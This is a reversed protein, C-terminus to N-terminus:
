NKSKLHDFDLDEPEGQDMLLFPFKCSASQGHPIIQLIGTMPSSLECVGTRLSWWWSSIEYHPIRDKDIRKSSYRVGGITATIQIFRTKAEIARLQEHPIPMAEEEIAVLQGKDDYFSRSFSLELAQQQAESELAGVMEKLGFYKAEGILIEREREELSSPVTKGRLWNLIHVFTSGDRDIFIHGRRDTALPHKGSFMAALMSAPDARLTSLLTAHAVGGVNLEVVDPLQSNISSPQLVHDLLIPQMFPIKLEVKNAESKRSINPPTSQMLTFLESAVLSKLKISGKYSEHNNGKAEVDLINGLACFTVAFMEKSPSACDITLQQVQAEM